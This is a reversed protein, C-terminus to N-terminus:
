RVTFPGVQAGRAAKAAIQLIMEDQRAQPVGTETWLKRLEREEPTKSEPDYLDVPNGLSDYIGVIAESFTDPIQTDGDTVLVHSEDPAFFALAMCNGGTHYEFFGREQLTSIPEGSSTVILTKVADYMERAATAPMLVPTTTQQM